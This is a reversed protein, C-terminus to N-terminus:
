LGGCAGDSGCGGTGPRPRRRLSRPNCTEIGDSVLIVTAKEETYKLAEAAQVVADTMPTKGRPKLANVAQGIAARSSAGPMVLTEIDACDGKTRHGYATLGLAQGEPLTDLLDGVVGQAIEIKTVGDIQGWMSGSADLVLISQGEAAAFGPLLCLSLLTNRYFAM